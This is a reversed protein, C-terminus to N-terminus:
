NENTDVSSYMDLKLLLKAHLLGNPNYWANYNWSEFFAPTTQIQLPM